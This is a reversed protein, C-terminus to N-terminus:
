DNNYWCLYYPNGQVSVRVTHKCPSSPVGTGFRTQCVGDSDAMYGDWLAQNENYGPHAQYATDDCNAPKGLGSVTPFVVFSIALLTIVFVLLINKMVLGKFISIQFPM